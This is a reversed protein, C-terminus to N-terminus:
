TPHAVQAPPVFFGCSFEMKMADHFGMSIPILEHHLVLALYGTFPHPATPV